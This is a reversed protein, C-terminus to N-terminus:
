RTAGCGACVEFNGNYKYVKHECHRESLDYKKIDEETPGYSLYINEMKPLRCILSDLFAEETKFDRLEGRWIFHWSDMQDLCTIVLNKYRSDRIKPDITIAYELMDLDLVRTKFEGQWESHVNTEDTCNPYFTHSNIPGNGHRTQYGRTVLYYETDAGLETGIEQTGLRSRTVHPFMGYDMDLMMGQSGEYIEVGHYKLIEEDSVRKTIERCALLFNTMMNDEVLHALKNGYYHKEILYLKDKFINEYFLDKFYLHYNDEERQITAGFGVGVSGYKTIRESSQNLVKEYPTTIPTLPDIYIKPEYGKEKLIDWENVFGVPDVTKARWHTPVGKLSASGFNSFIHKEGDETRVCHGVQHGGSHRIVIPNRGESALWNVVHGKGEDGFNLGVVVKKDM